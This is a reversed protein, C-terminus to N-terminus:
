LAKSTACRYFQCLQWFQVFFWFCVLKGGWYHNYQPLAKKLQLLFFLAWRVKTTAPKWFFFFYVWEGNSNGNLYKFSGRLKIIKLKYIGLVGAQRGGIHWESDKQMNTSRHLREKNQIRRLYYHGFSSKIGYSPHQLSSWRDYFGFHCKDKQHFFSM